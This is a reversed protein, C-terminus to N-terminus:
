RRLERVGAGIQRRMVRRLTSPDEYGVQRAIEDFPLRTTKILDVAREVRMRQLFQVPSLGTFKELRRAFTRPGLAVSAAMQDVCFDDGLRSRAWRAARAVVDDANALIGVSTFRAQSRRQDLLLYRACSDALKPGAHQAVLALSLDLQAMAAGATTVKGDVVILADADVIVDPYLRRFLPALWWTTTARRDALLGASAVLFVASCSAAIAIGGDAAAILAQRAREADRAALRSVFADEDSFGLGPVVVVSPTGTADSGGVLSRALRAGSGTARLAFAPPRGAMGSLRNATNFVEFTVAVSAPSAGTLVLVDVTVM